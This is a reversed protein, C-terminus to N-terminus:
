VMSILHKLFDITESEPWTHNSILENKVFDDYVELIPPSDIFVEFYGDDYGSSADFIWLAKNEYYSFQLNGISYDNKLLYMKFFDNKQLQQLIFELTTKVEKATFPKLHYVFHEALERNKVFDLLGRKTFFNVKLTDIYYYDYFREYCIQKLRRMTLSDEELGLCNADALVNLLIDFPIMSYHLGHEILYRNTNARLIATLDCISLITDWPDQKEYTKRLIHGKISQRDFHYLYFLFTKHGPMDKVCSFSGASDIKILDTYHDGRATEKDIVICNPFVASHMDFTIETDISYVDYHDYNILKFISVLSEANHRRNNGWYIIQSISICAPPSTRILNVLENIFEASVADFILLRLRAFHKYASFFERLSISIQDIPNWVPPSESHDQCANFLQLLIKRAAVTDKGAKSAEISQELQELESASLNFVDLEVLKTTFAEIISISCEDKLIRRISNRSKTGTLEALRTVSVNKSKLLSSLFEGFTMMEVGM